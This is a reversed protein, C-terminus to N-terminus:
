VKEQYEGFVERLVGCIEGITAYSKVAALIPPVLNVGDAVAEKLGKLTNKVKHNDRGAKLKKLREIQKEELAPDVKFIKISLPEDVKYMNVGVVVKEGSEIAKLWKYASMGIQQSIFGSEIAKIAGGRAEVQEFLKIIKGEIKDTLAEIYYSGGLPDTTNIIGTEHALIQVTRVAVRVSEASPTALAEDYSHAEVVQAGGLIQVLATITGRVINNLPQQATYASGQSGGRFSLAMVRPNTAGFREKMMKSWLRRFARYKCIEEFLDLGAVANIWPSPFDDVGIGRRTLENMYAVANALCFALGQVVDAGAERMHYECYNIPLINDLRNKVCYEVVDCSLKVSAEAPLIFTGRAVFEKLVDNQLNLRLKEAPVGQEEAVALMWALFIPGIANATTAIHVKDLPIGEFMGEVDLLSDIAIGQKGVEGNALPNDSDYGIQTPLDMAVSIENLGQALLYKYRENTTKGTGFGGYQMMRFLQARYMDADIGRTYPYQGPFGLRENYDWSAKELDIPTYIREVPLGSSTSFDKKWEGKEELEEKLSTKEWSGKEHQIESLEKKSYAM